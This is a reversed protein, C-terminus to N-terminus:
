RMQKALFFMILRYCKTTFNKFCSLDLRYVKRFVVRRSLYYDWYLQKGTDFCFQNKKSRRKVIRPAIEDFNEVNQDEILETLGAAEFFSPDGTVYYRRLANLVPNEVAANFVFRGRSVLRSFERAM